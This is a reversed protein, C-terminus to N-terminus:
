PQPNVPVITWPVSGMRGTELVRPHADIGRLLQKIKQKVAAPDVARPFLRSHEAPQELHLVVGLSKSKLTQGAFYKEDSDSANVRACLLAALTDRVKCAVELGLETPKTRPQVRYDKVEILWARQEPSPSVALVDVAKAGGCVSQFQNRYFTWEM